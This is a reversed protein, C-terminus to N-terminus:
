RILARRLVELAREVQATKPAIQRRMENYMAERILESRDVTPDDMRATDVMADYADLLSRPLRLSIQTMGSDSAASASM